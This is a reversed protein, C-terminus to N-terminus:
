CDACGDHQHLWAIIERRDAELRHRLEKDRELFARVACDVVHIALHAELGLGDLLLPRVSSNALLKAVPDIILRGVIDIQELRRDIDGAVVIVTVM